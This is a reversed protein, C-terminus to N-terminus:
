AYKSKEELLKFLKGEIDFLKKQMNKLEKLKKPTLPVPESSDILEIILGDYKDNLSKWESGLRKLKETNM